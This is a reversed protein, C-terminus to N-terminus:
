ADSLGLAPQYGIFPLWMRDFYAGNGVVATQIGRSRFGRPRFAVDFSMRLSDGPELARELAFIRYGTEEDVVAARAPRDFSMSRADIDLDTVVHVSDIAVGTQNVLRYTGRMDVAPEDPYIEVRLDAATIVPQPSDEFRGYRREYEAQPRGAENRSPSANLVNTNYFIFGGLAVILVTAVAAMRALSGHLRARAAAIRSRVGLERGRVWFMVTVVGLLLAWATWYLKFWLFPGVYPGFGNMDSYTWGPGSNYVVLYSLGMPGALMSLMFAAIVVIHGVYKQNVLVHVTMAMAGLLVYGALNLGFVARLYLGLEFNYYGRLGQLLIGGVMFAAHFVLIIAVLALFRGLLAVGTPVPVADAIEAAGVERDKWVLEGAYVAILLLPIVVIRQSLVTSIVLHTVPWTSTEFVTDGVNWGWLLVLGIAGVFAVQFARGSMVEALSQRAVGLTQRMGTRFGFVGAVNPVAVPSSRPSPTEVFAERAKQRRRGGDAHAFRFTRHLLTLVGAATALWLVRNWLLVSPFGILRANGEAATWYRTMELVANIGFPDALASLMPNDIGSWYNAAVIYGIFIGIAGLYVPIVQRALAAITFLIAGILVLNPLSFVLLPQLYAALRFPGLDVPEFLPTLTAIFHGLPLAVVLIANVVLAALFRGGLYETKSLRTTYLLPDMGVAVDRLAADAFLAASVLMGFLGGFLVIGEAVERPANVHVAEGGGTAALGWLMVLFLFAAYIWTSASRARYGLEYRFVARLRM